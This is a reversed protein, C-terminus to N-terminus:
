NVPVFLERDSSLTAIGMGEIIEFGEIQNANDFRSSTAHAADLLFNERQALVFYGHVDMRTNFLPVLSALM